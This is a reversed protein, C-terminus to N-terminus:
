PCAWRCWRYGPRLPWRSPGMSCRSCNWARGPRSAARPSFPSARGPIYKFLMMIDIYSGHNAVYVCPQPNPGAQERVVEVPVGWMTISLWSWFRNLRHVVYEGGPRRSFYWQLPFTLVFPVIFWFTAWTTYLRQGIYRLLHRM